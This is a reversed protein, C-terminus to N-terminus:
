KREVHSKLVGFRRFHKRQRRQKIEFIAYAHYPTKPISFPVRSQHLKPNVLRYFQNERRDKKRYM